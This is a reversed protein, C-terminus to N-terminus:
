VKRKPQPCDSKHAVGAFLQGHSDLIIKAGCTECIACRLAPNKEHPKFPTMWHGRSFANVQTAQKPVSATAHTM